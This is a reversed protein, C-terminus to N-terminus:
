LCTLGVCTSRLCVLAVRVKLRLSFSPCVLVRKTALEPGQPNQLERLVVAVPRKNPVSSELSLTPSVGPQRTRGESGYRFCLSRPYRDERGDYEDM